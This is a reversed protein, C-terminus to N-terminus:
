NAVDISVDQLKEMECKYISQFDVEGCAYTIPHEISYNDVKGEILEIPVDVDDIFDFDEQSDQTM